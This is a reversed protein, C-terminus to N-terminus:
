PKSTPRPMWASLPQDSRAWRAARRKEASTATTPLFKPDIYRGLKAWDLAEYFPLAAEISRPKLDPKGTRLLIEGYDHATKLSALEAASTQAAAFPRFQLQATQGSSYLGVEAYALRGSAISVIYHRGSPISVRKGIVAAPKLVVGGIAIWNPNELTRIQLTFM